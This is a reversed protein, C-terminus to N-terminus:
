PVRRLGFRRDFERTLVANMDVRESKPPALIGAEIHAIEGPYPLRRTRTGGNEACQSVDHFLQM